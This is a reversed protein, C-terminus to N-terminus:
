KTGEVLEQFRGLLGRQLRLEHFLMEKSEKSEINLALGTEALAIYRELAYSYFDEINAAIESDSLLGLSEGSAASFSLSLDFSTDERDAKAAELLLELSKKKIIYNQHETVLSLATRNATYSGIGGGLVGGILGGAPEGTILAGLAAGQAFGLLAGRTQAARQIAAYEDAREEIADPTLVQEEFTTVVEKELIPGALSGAQANSISV